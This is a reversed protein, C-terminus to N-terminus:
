KIRQVQSDCVREGISCSLKSKKVTASRPFNKPLIEEINPEQSVEQKTKGEM